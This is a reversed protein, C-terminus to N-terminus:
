KFEIANKIQKFVFFLAWYTIGWYIGQGVLESLLVPEIPAELAQIAVSCQVIQATVQADGSCVFAFSM